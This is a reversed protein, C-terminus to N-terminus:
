MTPVCHQQTLTRLQTRADMCPVALGYRVIYGIPISVIESEDVEVDSGIQRRDEIPVHFLQEYIQGSLILRLIIHTCADRVRLRM